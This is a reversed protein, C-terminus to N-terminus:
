LVGTPKMGLDSLIFMYQLELTLFFLGKVQEVVCHTQLPQMPCHASFSPSDHGGIGYCSFLRIQTLSTLFDPSVPPSPSPSRLMLLDPGAQSTMRSM